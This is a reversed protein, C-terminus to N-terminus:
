DFLSNIMLSGHLSSQVEDDKIKFKQKAEPNSKEKGGWLECQGINMHYGFDHDHLASVIGNDAKLFLLTVTM